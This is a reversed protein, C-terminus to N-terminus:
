YQINLEDLLMSAYRKAYVGDSYRPRMYEVMNDYNIVPAIHFDATKNIINWDKAIRRWYIFFEEEDHFGAVDLIRGDPSKVFLHCWSREQDGHKSGAWWMDWGTLDSLAKAFLWCDGFTFTDQVRDSFVDLLNEDYSAKLVASMIVDM